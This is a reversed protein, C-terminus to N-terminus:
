ILAPFTELPVVVTYRQAYTARPLSVGEREFLKDYILVDLPSIMLLLFFTRRRKLRRHVCASAHAYQCVNTHSPNESVRERLARM